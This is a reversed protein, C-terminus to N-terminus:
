EIQTSAIANSYVQLRAAPTLAAGVVWQALDGGRDLMADAFGRQLELLTPATVM